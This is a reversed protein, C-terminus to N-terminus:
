ALKMVEKLSTKGGMISSVSLGAPNIGSNTLFTVLSDTNQLARVTVSPGWGSWNYGAFLGASTGGEVALTYDAGQSLQQNTTWTGSTGGTDVEGQALSQGNVTWWVLFKDYSSSVWSITISADANLTAPENVTKVIVPKTPQDIQTQPVKTTLSGANTCSVEWYDDAYQNDPVGDTENRPCLWFTFASGAQVEVTILGEPNPTQWDITGVLTAANLNAPQSGAEQAYVQVIDPPLGTLNFSIQVKANPLTYPKLQVPNSINVFGTAM